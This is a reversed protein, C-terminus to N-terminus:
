GKLEKDMIKFLVCKAINLVKRAGEDDSHAIMEQADSMLGAVIMSAGSFKYTESNKIHREIYLEIDSVGYLDLDTITTM